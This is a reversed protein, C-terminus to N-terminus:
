RPRLRNWFEKRDNSHPYPEDPVACGLFRCLPEWGETIRYELLRDPPVLSRVAENHANFISKVHVESRTEGGFTWDRIMRLTIYARPTLQDEPLTELEWIRALITTNMSAFWSDVDRVTLIIKAAPYHAVLQRWFVLSPWDLCSVYGELMKDVTASGNAYADLWGLATEPHAIVETMHHCPGFGLRTLAFKLSVSGTRGLGVGIVKLM